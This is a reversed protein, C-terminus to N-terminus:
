SPTPLKEEVGHIILLYLNQLRPKAHCLRSFSTEDLDLHTVNGCVKSLHVLQFSRYSNTWIGNVLSGATMQSGTMTPPCPPCLAHIFGQSARLNDIVVAHFLYPRAIHRAWSAVLCIDLSSYRSSSTAMRLIHNVLEM